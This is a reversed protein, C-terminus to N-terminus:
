AFEYKKLILQEYLDIGGATLRVRGPVGNGGTAEAPLGDLQVAGYEQLYFLDPLPDREVGAKRLRSKFEDLTLEEFAHERWQQYLVDFINFRMTWDFRQKNPAFFMPGPIKFLQKGVTMNILAGFALWLAILGLGATFLVMAWDCARLAGLVGAKFLLAKVVRAVYLLDIDLLFLFLLKSFFGFGYTFVCFVILMAIDVALVINHDPLTGGAAANLAWYNMLWNFSFATFLTGGFLNQNAFSMIGALFQCGAGFLLAFMAATKLGSPTLGYGLTMPILAACAIALGILGLPSPEAFPHRPIGLEVRRIM